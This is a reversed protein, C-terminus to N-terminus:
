RLMLYVPEQFELPIKVIIDDGDKEYDAKKWEGDIDLCFLSEFSAFSKPVYVRADLVTDAGTNILTLIASFDEKEKPKNAILMVKAEDKIYVVDDSIRSILSKILAQRGMHFLSQSNNGKLTMGMVVIKGGLSNEFWTMAPAIVEGSFNKLETITKCNEDAITLERLIGQGRPCWSNAAPMTGSGFPECIYEQSGLDFMRKGQSFVDEGVDVGIYKGLGRECLAKAGDGDLFLGKSLYKLLVDENACRIFRDDAFTVPSEKTNYSIGFQSISKIWRPYYADEEAIATNCFPDYFIEVGSVLCKRTLNAITKFREKELHFVRAYPSATDSTKEVTATCHFISGDFGWSFVMGLMAKVDKESTFFKSHPYTDTEHLFNIDDGLHQRSYLPHFLQGPMEAPDGGCYFCGFLRTVPTNGEGALVRVLEDTSDGEFDTAGTQMYGIPIHPYERSLAERLTKALGVLTSKSYERWKRVLELDSGDNKAKVIEERSYFRGSFEEFGKLHDECFCGNGIQFDDETFIFDPEGIKVFAMMSECFADRYNKGLPCIMFPHDTGDPKVFMQFDERYGAKVTTAIWWGCSIGLPSLAKKIQLFAQACREFEEIPPYGKGRWGKSPCFYLFKKFGFNEFLSKSREIAVRVGEETPDLKLPIIMNLEKKEM